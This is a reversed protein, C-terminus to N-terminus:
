QKHKIGTIERSNGSRSLRNLDTGAHGSLTVTVDNSPQQSLKVTLNLSQGEFTAHLDLDPDLM